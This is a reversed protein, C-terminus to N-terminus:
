GERVVISAEKTYKSSNICIEENRILFFFSSIPLNKVTVIRFPGLIQSSLPQDEWWLDEWFLIREGNEVM